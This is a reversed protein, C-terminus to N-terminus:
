IALKNGLETIHAGLASRYLSLHDNEEKPATFSGSWSLCAASFQTPVDARDTGSDTRM